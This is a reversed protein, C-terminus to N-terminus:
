DLPDVGGVNEVGDVPEVDAVHEVGPMTGRPVVPNAQEILAVPDEMSVPLIVSRAAVHRVEIDAEEKWGPKKFAIPAVIRRLVEMDLAPGPDVKRGAPMAVEDHGAIFEIEYRAALARVVDALTALQIETYTHWFEHGGADEVHVMDESVEGGWWTHYIGDHTLWGPNDLEIGITSSNLAQREGFSSKGAHFTVLNFRAMQVILGDRGICLHASVKRSDKRTLVRVASDLNSGATYHIVIGDPGDDMDGGHDACQRFPTGPM